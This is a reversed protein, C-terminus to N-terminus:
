SAKKHSHIVCNEGIEGQVVFAFETNATGYLSFTCSGDNSNSTAISLPYFLNNTGFAVVVRSLPNSDTDTVSLSISINAISSFNRNSPVFQPFFSPM